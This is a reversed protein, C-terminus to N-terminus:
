RGGERGKEREIWRERRRHDIHGKDLILSRPMRRMQIKDTTM